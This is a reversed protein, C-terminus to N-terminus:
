AYCVVQRDGFPDVTTDVRLIQPQSGDPLTLRSEPTLAPPDAAGSDFIIEVASVREEGTATRVEKPMALVWASYSAPAGYTTEGYQNISTALEVTVTQLASGLASALLQGLRSTM